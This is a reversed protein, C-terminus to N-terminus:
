PQVQIAVKTAELNHNKTPPKCTEWARYLGETRHIRVKRNDEFVITLPYKISTPHDGGFCYFINTNSAYLLEDRDEFVVRSVLDEWHQIVITEGDQVLEIPYEFDFCPRVQQCRARAKEFDELNNILLTTADDFQAVIPFVVSFNREPSPYVYPEIDSTECAQTEAIWLQGILEDYAQDSDISQVQGSARRIIVPYDFSFCAGREYQIPDIYELIDTDCECAVSLAFLSSLALLKFCLNKM